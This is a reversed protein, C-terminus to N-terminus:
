IVEAFNPELRRFIALGAVYAAATFALMGIISGAEIADGYMILHRYSIIFHSMPNALLVLYYVSDHSINAAPYIIPAAYFGAQLVVEWIHQLDRFYVYMASLGLSFGLVLVFQVAFVLPVLLLWPTFQTAYEASVFGLLVAILLLMLFEIASSIAASICASIVLIQRPFYIKRVLAAYSKISGMSSLTFAFFRWPIIGSILYLPYNQMNFKFVQMFVFIIVASTLLPNMFSWLFGFVSHKYRNKLDASVLNWILERYRYYIRFSFMKRAPM